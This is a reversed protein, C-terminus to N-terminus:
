KSKKREQEFVGQKKHGMQTENNKLTKGTVLTNKALQLKEDTNDKNTCKKECALANIIIYESSHYQDELSAPLVYIIRDNKREQNSWGSLQCDINGSKQRPLLKGWPIM